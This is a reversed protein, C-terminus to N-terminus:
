FPLDGNNINPTIVAPQRVSIGPYFKLGDIMEYYRNAATDYYLKVTGRKGIGKPKYKHVTLQVENEPYPMGSDDMMGHPPRWVGIMNMGKRFWAEGGAIERPTPPPYFRVNDKVQVVQNQIHTSIINIRKKDFANRRVRGLKEELYLDQRNSHNYFDHKLENWPDIVTVDIHGVYGEIDDVIDYFEDSTLDHEGPDVVFVKESLEAIARYMQDETICGAINRYFPKRFMKSILEAFIEERTGSEPSFIVAKWGHTEIGFLLLDYIIESKGSFPSGYIYLTTRDKLTMLEDLGPFGTSKGKSNGSAKLQSIKDRCDTASYWYRTPSFNRTM